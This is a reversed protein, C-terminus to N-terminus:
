PDLKRILKAPGSDGHLFKCQEATWEFDIPLERLLGTTDEYRGGGHAAAIKGRLFNNASFSANNKTRINLMPVPNQFHSVRFSYLM